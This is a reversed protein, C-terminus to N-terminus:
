TRAPKLLSVRHTPESNSQFAKLNRNIGAILCGRHRSSEIADVSCLLSPLLRVQSWRCGRAAGRSRMSSVNAAPVTTVGAYRRDRSSSRRTYVSRGLRATDAHGGQGVVRGCPSRRHRTYTGVRDLGWCCCFSSSSAESSSVNTPRHNPPSSIRVRIYHVYEPGPLSFSRARLLACAHVHTTLLCSSCCALWAANAL